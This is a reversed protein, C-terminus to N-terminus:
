FKSTPNYPHVYNLESTGLREKNLLDELIPLVVVVFWHLLTNSRQLDPHTLILISYLFRYVSGVRLFSFFYNWTVATKNRKREEGHPDTKNRKREEGPSWDVTEQITEKYVRDNM